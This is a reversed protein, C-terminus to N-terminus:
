HSETRLRGPTANLVRGVEGYVGRDDGALTWAHQADARAAIAQQELSQATM